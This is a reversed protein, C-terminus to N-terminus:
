PEDERFFFWLDPRSYSRPFQFECFFTSLRSGLVAKRARPGGAEGMQKPATLLVPVDQLPCIIGLM